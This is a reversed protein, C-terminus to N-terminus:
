KFHGFIRECGETGFSIDVYETSQITVYKSQEEYRLTLHNWYQAPLTTATSATSQFYQAVAVGNEVYLCLYSNATCIM